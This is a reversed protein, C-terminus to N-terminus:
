YDRELLIPSELVVNGCLEVLSAWGQGEGVDGVVHLARVVRDGGLNRPRVQVARSNNAVWVGETGEKQGLAAGCCYAVVELGVEGLQPEM